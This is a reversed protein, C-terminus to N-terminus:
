KQLEATVITRHTYNRAASNFTGGCTILNLLAKDKTAFIEDLPVENFPYTKKTVVKYKYTNNKDDVVLVTDGEILNGLNWFIAPAGSQTDLHGALVASGDEGPKYGKNYWAVNMDEKPVDMRGESDLGVSEINTNVNIKEIILRRPTGIEKKPSPTPTVVETRASLVGTNSSQPSSLIKGILLGGLVVFIFISIYFATKM